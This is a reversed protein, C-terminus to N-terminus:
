KRIHIKCSYFLSDFNKNLEKPTLIVTTNPVMPMFAKSMGELKIQRFWIM